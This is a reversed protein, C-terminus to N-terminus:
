LTMYGGLNQNVSRTLAQDLELMLSRILEQALAEREVVSTLNRVSRAREVKATAHAEEKGDPRVIAVKVEVLGRLTADPANAFTAGWSAPDRRDEVVSVQLISVEASANGGTATVKEALYRRTLEALEETRRRDIFTGAEAPPYAEAVDVHAVALQQGPIAALPDPPPAPPPAACAALALLAPVLVRRM